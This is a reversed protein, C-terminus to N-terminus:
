WKKGHARARAEYTHDERRTNYELKEALAGVLDLGFGAAFDLTRIVADALEVELASRHPLHKDPISKRAGEMAESVESVILMLLEGKNRDLRQGAADYWWRHNLNLIQAQLRRLEILQESTPLMPSM